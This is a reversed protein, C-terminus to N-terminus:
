INEQNEFDFGDTVVERAALEREDDTLGDPGEAEVKPDVDERVKEFTGDPFLAAVHDGAFEQMLGTGTHKYLPM